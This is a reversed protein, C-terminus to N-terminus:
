VGGAGDASSTGRKMYRDVLRLWWLPLGMLTVLKPTLGLALFFSRVSWQLFVGPGGM